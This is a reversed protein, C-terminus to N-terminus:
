ARKKILTKLSRKVNRIVDTGFLSLQGRISRTQVWEHLPLSAAGFQLKWPYDGITFDFVSHGAEVSARLTDEITLLGLSLRRYRAVDFGLLLLHFAKRHLLGFAAGCPVGSLYLCYTRALGSNAGRIAINRYFSFLADNELIDSVKREGFRQARFERLAEFVRVIERRDEVLVFAPDGRKAVRRRKIELDRRFGSPLAASRWKDWDKSLRVPHASLRMQRVQAQPFLSDLLADYEHVKTLVVIDCPLLAAIRDPLTVDSILRPQDAPDYIPRLYDCVGFDAFEIVSVQRHRRRVLPLVLLLEGSHAERVTVIVPNAGFAPAVDRYLTELWLATQFAAANSRNLLSCYEDSRFDFHPEVAVENGFTSPECRDRLATVLTM